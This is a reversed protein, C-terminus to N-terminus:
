IVTCDAPRPLAQQAQLTGQLEAKRPDKPTLPPHAPPTPQPAPRCGLLGGGLAVLAVLLMTASRRQYIPTAATM